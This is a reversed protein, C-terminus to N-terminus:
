ALEVKAFEKNKLPNRLSALIVGTDLKSLHKLVQVKIEIISYTRSLCCTETNNDPKLKPTSLYSETRFQQKQLPKVHSSLTAIDLVM